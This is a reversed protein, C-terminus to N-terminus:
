ESVNLHHLRRRGGVLRMQSNVAAKFEKNEKGIARCKRREEALDKKEEKLKDQMEARSLCVFPRRSIHTNYQLYYIARKLWRNLSTDWLIKTERKFASVEEPVSRNYHSDVFM